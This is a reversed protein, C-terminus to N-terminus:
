EMDVPTEPNGALRNCYRALVFLYDSLRNIYALVSMRIAGDGYEADELLKVTHREARRCVTRAVHSWSAAMSGGPLVFGSLPPMEKELRDIEHELMHLREEGVPKLVEARASDPPTALIAGIHFLTSQIQRLQEFVSEPCGSPLASVLAGLAASLEDVDGYAEIRVHSKRVRQGGFLGTEGLDGTKTYIKM